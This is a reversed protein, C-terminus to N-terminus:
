TSEATHAQEIMREAEEKHYKAETHTNLLSAGAKIEEVALATHGRMAERTLETHAHIETDHRKTENSVEVDHAKVVAKIHEKQLGTKIEVQAQELAQKLNANEKSLALVINRAREPLGELIQKLGDPTQAMLRDALQQMYPHDISRFVLDPATKAIIEALAQIKLMELLNEAGEQRKTEFSPGTDMVVDYRGVSLDNLVKGLPDNPDAARLTVLKPTSDEGIIRQVRGPDNFYHPIWEVMVRWCQAIAWTTGKAYQVHSQDSLLQRKDLAIGSVVQGQKDAGPENPMGAVALLNTRMGQVFETFGAEIQAPPQRQPPPVLISGQSGEVTTPKYTLVAYSQTNASDWEPHGDLQGEAAIWPAKPALGLRKIKATEGYDVMRQPDKLGRVMGRRIVKGDVDAVNGQVRFVPIWQGPLQEREVIKRGNLRFWQVDRKASEREGEIKLGMEALIAAATDVDFREGPARPMESQWLTYEKGQGRVLYLDQSIEVIRFYEALRIEEKNEWDHVSTDRSGENWNANEARPYRRKYETRKMLTSIINWGQDSGSPMVSGPDMYVTFVNRIPIIRLDKQFSKPHVWEAVLRFYGWGNTIASKSAQAYAVEAESRVEVHRGIGNIVEAIEVAAGDGVPHAKGARQQELMNNEVRQCLADTLNIVLEPEAESMTTVGPSDWHVDHDGERFLIDEKAENRNDNEADLCIKLRDRAELFIEKESIADFEPDREATM